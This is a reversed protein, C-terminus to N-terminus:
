FANNQVFTPAFVVNEEVLDTTLPAAVTAVGTRLGLLPPCRSRLSLDVSRAQSEPGRRAAVTAVSHHRGSPIESSATGVAADHHRSAPV